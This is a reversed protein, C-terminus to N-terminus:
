TSLTESIDACIHVRKYRLPRSHATVQGAALSFPDTIEPILSFKLFM